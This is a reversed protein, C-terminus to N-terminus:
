NFRNKQMSSRYAYKQLRTPARCQRAGVSRFHERCTPNKDRRKSVDLHEFSFDSDCRFQRSLVAEGSFLVRADLFNKPAFRVEGLQADEAHHPTLVTGVFRALHMQASQRSATRLYQLSWTFVRTDDIDPITQGRCEFHFRVIM